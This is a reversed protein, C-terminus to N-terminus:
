KFGVDGRREGGIYSMAREEMLGEKVRIINNGNSPFVSAVVCGVGDVDSTDTNECFM